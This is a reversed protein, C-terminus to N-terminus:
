RRHVFFFLVQSSYCICFDVVSRRVGAGAGRIDQCQGLPDAAPNVPDPSFIFLACFSTFQVLIAHLSTLAFVEFFGHGM